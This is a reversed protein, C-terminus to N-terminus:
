NPTAMFEVALISIDDQVKQSGQWRAIIETLTDVSAQLSECRRRNIADLLRVNGFQNGAADMAETVGDSYLYLRDGKGLCLTREEYAGDALGIPYGPSQLIVPEAGSPLHVPGPHGTSVYRFEGTAGNLIGYIMTTLQEIGADFPFLKNLHEAVEIPPTIDPQKGVEAGQILISAPESPPSLLRSLTVSLLASAVGHGSVDLVCLGVRGDGLAIINLADGALEDCPRYLWTDHDLSHKDSRNNALM